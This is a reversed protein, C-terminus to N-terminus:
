YEPESSGPEEGSALMTIHLAMAPVVPPVYGGIFRMCIASTVAAVFGLAAYTLCDRLFDEFFFTEKSRFGFWAIQGGLKATLFVGMTALAYTTYRIPNSPALPVPLYEVIGLDTLALQVTLAIAFAATASVLFYWSKWGPGRTGVPLVVEQRM